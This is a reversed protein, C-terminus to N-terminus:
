CFFMYGNLGLAADSLGSGTKWSIAKKARDREKGKRTLRLTRKEEKRQRATSREKNPTEANPEKRRWEPVPM